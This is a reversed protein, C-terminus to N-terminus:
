RRRDASVALRVRSRSEAYTTAATWVLALPGPLLLVLAFSLYAAAWVSLAVASLVGLVVVPSRTAVYISVLWVERAPAGTRVAYPLAVLGAFLAIIMLVAGFAVSVLMWTRGGLQWTHYATLELLVVLTVPVQVRLARRVTRGLDGVLRRVGFHDDTLLVQSAHLLAAFLPVVVLGTGTISVWGSRQSLVRVVAWAAAVMASGLLFMPLNPWLLSAARRVPEVDTRSGGGASSSM